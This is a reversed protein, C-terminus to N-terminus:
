YGMYKERLELSPQPFGYDDEPDCPMWLDWRGRPCGPYPPVGGIQVTDINTADVMIFPCKYFKEVPQGLIVNTMAVQLCVDTPEVGGHTSFTDARGDKVADWMAIEADNSAIIIHDPDDLPLLLGVSDLGPVMGAGGCGHHFLAVIEPHAMVMDATITATQEEAWNTDASEIVTIWPERDVAKHFGESRLQATLMERMGWLEAVVCPNDPGYGRRELDDILWEGLIDTGGPGEFKHAVFSTVADTEIGCDLTFVPIGKEYVMKEAVPVELEASVSHCMFWDPEMSVAMDEFFGIQADLVFGAGFTTWNEGKPGMGFRPLFDELMKVAQAMPEVELTSCTYAIKYPSGDPKVFLGEFPNMLLEGNFQGRAVQEALEPIDKAKLM